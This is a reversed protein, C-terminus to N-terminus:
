RKKGELSLTVCKRENLSMGFARLLPGARALWRNAGERSSVSLAADFYVATDDILCAAFGTDAEPRSAIWVLILVLIFVMSCTSLGQFIGVLVRFADDGLIAIGNVYIFTLFAAVNEDLGMALLAPLIRDHAAPGFGNSIDLFLVTLGAGKGEREISGKNFPALLSIQAVAQQWDKRLSM